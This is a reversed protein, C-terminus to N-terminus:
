RAKPLEMSVQEPTAAPGDFTLKSGERTITMKM